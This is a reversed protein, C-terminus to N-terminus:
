ADNSISTRLFSKFIASMMQSNKGENLIEKRGLIIEVVFNEDNKWRLWESKQKTWRNDSTVLPVKFKRTSM